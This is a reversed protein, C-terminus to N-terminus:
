GREVEVIGDIAEIEAILTDTDAGAVWVVDVDYTGAEGWGAVYSDVAGEALKTALLLDVDANSGRRAGAETLHVILHQTTAVSSQSDVQSSEDLELGSILGATTTTDSSGVSPSGSSGCAGLAFAM